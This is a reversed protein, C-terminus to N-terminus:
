DVELVIEGLSGEGSAFLANLLGTRIEALAVTCLRELPLVPQILCTRFGSLIGLSRVIADIVMWIIATSIM